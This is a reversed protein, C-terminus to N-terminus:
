PPRHRSESIRAVAYSTPGTLKDTNPHDCLQLLEFGSLHLLLELECPFIVRRRILDTAHRGDAFHWQRHVTLIQHRHDWESSITVEATTNAIDITSTAPPRNGTSALLTQLILVTGPHAHAAFTDLAARLDTIPHLYSLSNGLCTIVDVTRGLRATRMDAVRVDLWPRVRRAHEIMGPQLDIGLCDFRTTLHALDRGTGCGFDLLTHAPTPSHTEVLDIVARAPGDDDGFMLDYLDPERYVINTAALTV